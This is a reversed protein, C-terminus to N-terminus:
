MASPDPFQFETKNDGEWGLAQDGTSETPKGACDNRAVEDVALFSWTIHRRHVMPFINKLNSISDIVVGYHM